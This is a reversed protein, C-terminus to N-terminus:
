SEVNFCHQTCIGEFNALTVLTDEVLSSHQAEQGCVVGDVETFFVTNEYNGSCTNVKMWHYM